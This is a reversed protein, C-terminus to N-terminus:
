LSESFSFSFNILCISSNRLLFAEPRQTCLYFIKYISILNTPTLPNSGGVEHDWVQSITDPLSCERTLKQIKKQLRVSPQREGKSLMTVYSRSIGLERAIDAKKM